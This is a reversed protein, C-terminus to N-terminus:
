VGMTGASWAPVDGDGLSASKCQIRAFARTGRRVFGEEEAAPGFGDFRKAVRSSSSALLECFLDTDTKTAYFLCVTRLLLSDCRADDGLEASFKPAGGAWLSLLRRFCWARRRPAARLPARPSTRAFFLLFFDISPNSGLIEHDTTVRRIWQAMGVRATELGRGRLAASFLSSSLQQLKARVEGSRSPRTLRPARSPSARM